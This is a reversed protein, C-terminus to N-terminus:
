WPAIGLSYITVGNKGNRGIISNYTKTNIGNAYKYYIQVEKPKSTGNFMDQTNTVETSYITVTSSFNSCNLFTRQLNIVGTGITIPSNLNNCDSFARFMTLNSGNGITIPQNLSYCNSFTSRMNTVSDPINMPQNFSTSNWFCDEMSTVSNPITVPQNFEHCFSIAQYMRQVKDPISIPSNLSSCNFFTGEMNVTNQPLKVPYNFNHCDQFARGMGSISDHMNTVSKLNACNYFSLTTGSPPVNQCDVSVIESHERLALPGLLTNGNLRPVYVSTSTGIYKDLRVKGAVATNNCTWDAIDGKDDTYTPVLQVMIGSYYKFTM